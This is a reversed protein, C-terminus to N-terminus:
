RLRDYLAAWGSAEMQVPNGSMSGGFCEAGMKQAIEGNIDLNKLDSPIGLKDNLEKIFDIAARTGDGKKSYAKGTLAEGAEDYLWPKQMANIEMVYPIFIGVAEGHSVPFHINLAMGLGHAAGLGSNALALGGCLASLAMGERAEIDDPKDYARKLYKGALTIGELAIARTLPTPNKVTTYAELNHTMADIGSTATAKPPLGVTLTPDIIVIDAIMRDDRMSRKFKEAKSGLVANKTVESGTGSTTPMAIFPVPARVVKKGTGVFELYDKASPGNTILAATAKGVDILSGGGLSLVTDCGERAALAYAADVHEVDPEGAVDTFYTCKIGQAHLQKGLRDAVGNNLFAKRTVVLFKKGFGNMYQGLEDFAGSKFIIRPATLFTFNM